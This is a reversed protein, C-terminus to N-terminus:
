SLYMLDRLNYVVAEFYNWCFFLDDFHLVFNVADILSDIFGDDVNEKNGEEVQTYLFVYIKGAVLILIDYM